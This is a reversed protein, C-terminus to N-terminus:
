VWDRRCATPARRPPRPTEGTYRSPIPSPAVPQVGTFRSHIYRGAHCLQLSARVDEAKIAEALKALGDVYMDDDVRLCHPGLYGTPYDVSAAEVTLLGPRGTAREAYYAVMKDTVNGERDSFGTGMPAMVVRNPLTVDGVQLSEFLRDLEGPIM